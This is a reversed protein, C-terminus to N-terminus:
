DGMLLWYNRRSFGCEVRKCFKIFSNMIKNVFALWKGKDQTLLIWKIVGWGMEKYDIKIKNGV